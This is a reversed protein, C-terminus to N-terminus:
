KNLIARVMPGVIGDGKLGNAIEFQIVAAKTKSGFQGDAMGIDYGANNLFKQLEMVENGSSGFDLWQTFHFAEAGLVSATTFPLTEGYATGKSNTAYARVYFTTNSRLNQTFNSTFSGIGTGDNTHLNNITVTPLSNYAVGRATVPSGGDSIVTGGSTASTATINTVPSTSVTPLSIPTAPDVTLSFQKSVKETGSVVEVTFIFIKAVKLEVSNEYIKVPTGTIYIPNGYSSSIGLGPIPFSQAGNNVTWGHFGPDGGTTNLAVSYPVGVKANPLPSSTTISLPTTTIAGVNVTFSESDSGGKCDNVSVKVTYTGAKEWTHSSSYTWNKKSGTTPNIQCTTTSGIGEGWDLSWSLDDNDVDTANFNFNVSQGARIGELIAIPGIKPSSNTITESVITFTKDSFDKRYETGDQSQWTALFYYMGPAYINNIQYSGSTIQSIGSAYGQGCGLNYYKSNGWANSSNSTTIYECVSGKKQSSFEIKYNLWDGTADSSGKRIIDGGNPSLVTISPTSISSIATIMSSREDGGGKCDHVSALMKYTGAKQWTHSFTITWNKGSRVPPNVPCVGSFSPTGDGWDIRWSLDDNDDDKAILRYTVEEGANVTQSSPFQTIAPLHNTSTANTIKFYNDSTDCDAASTINTARCVEIKYRNGVGESSGFGFVTWKYSSGPVNYGVLSSGGGPKGYDYTIHINYVGSSQNDTWTIVKDTGNVWTEGGNPSLVTISPTTTSGGDTIFKYATRYNEVPLLDQLWWNINLASNAYTQIQNLQVRFSHSATPGSTM